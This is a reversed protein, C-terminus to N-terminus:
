GLSMLSSVWYMLFIHRSKNLPCTSNAVLLSIMKALTLLTSLKLSIIKRQCCSILSGEQVLNQLFGMLFLQCPLIVYCIHYQGQKNFVQSRRHFGSFQVFQVDLSIPSYRSQSLTTNQPRITSGAIAFNARHSFNSGVSDLYAILYPLGLSETSFWAILLIYTNIKYPILTSTRFKFRSEVSM